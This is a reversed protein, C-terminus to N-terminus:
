GKEFNERNERKGRRDTPHGYGGAGQNNKTTLRGHLGPGARALILLVLPLLAGAAQFQAFIYTTNHKL